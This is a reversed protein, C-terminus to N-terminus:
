FHHELKLEFFIFLEKYFEYARMVCFGSLFNHKQLLENELSLKTKIDSVIFCDTKPNFESLWKWRFSPDKIKIFKFM